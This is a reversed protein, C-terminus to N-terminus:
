SDNVGLDSMYRSTLSRIAFWLGVFDLSLTSLGAEFDIIESGRTLAAVASATSSGETIHTEEDGDERAAEGSGSFGLMMFGDSLFFCVCGATWFFRGFPFFSFAVGIVGASYARMSWSFDAADFSWTHEM